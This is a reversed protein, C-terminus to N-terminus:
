RPINKIAEYKENNKMASLKGSNITARGAM